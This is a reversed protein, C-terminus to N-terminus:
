KKLKLALAAKIIVATDAKELEANIKIAKAVLDAAEQPKLELAILAEIAESQAFPLNASTALEQNDFKISHAKSNFRDKLEVILREATKKGIGPLRILASTDGNKVTQLLEAGSMGSMILLASKPGIGSVRLLERFLKREELSNFGYLYVGDERQAYHIFLQAEQNVVFNDLASIPVSVEYGVGNVDIIIEGAQRHIVKGSLWSIM